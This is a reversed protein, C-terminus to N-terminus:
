KILKLRREIAEIVTDLVKVRGYLKCNSEVITWPALPTSTRYIMEDVAKKYDDWKKRNRWDEPTIKWQKSPTRTRENFRRLQENSDIHLWFKVVVTGFNVLHEEMENIEHYARRWAEEACFGEVREVLVRGYWSRDFITIHGAKPMKQWFRWLYHHAKEIDNPAAVPEVEYGRPDLRQTLRRIAGGKGAADWGELAIVVPIRARYIRYELERLLKQKKKLKNEYESRELSLSVDAKDLISTDLKDFAPLPGRDKKLARPKPSSTTRKKLASSITAFMKLAAFHYDHSEIVTWPSYETDTKALMDEIAALYGSYKKHRDLDEKSVRWATAESDLLKKFRKKQEAKSIHLFFKIIIAGDDVLQREFSIIDTFAQKLQEKKITGDVRDNLVRRYWSHDFIAIRGRSPVNNWFRWLFPHLQEEETPPRCNYVNFGRPDLNLILDNILTGKGAADWGEFVILLPIQQQRAERQLAPLQLDFTKRAKKFEHKSVKKSLDINELMLLGKQYIAQVVTGM